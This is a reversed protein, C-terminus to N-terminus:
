HLIKELIRDFTELVQGGQAASSGTEEKKMQRVIRGRLSTLMKHVSRVGFDCMTDLPLDKAPVPFREGSKQELLRVL